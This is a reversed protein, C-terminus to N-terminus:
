IFFLFAASGILACLLFVILEYGLIDKFELRAVALLPLCWFPQIMDTVMDGWAYALVTKSFPVGLSRSAELIYPAEIAWKSGGSPIFYNLLGSYWYVVLPFCEKTSVAVFWSGIIRDLGSGKIVGFIGAYIPFQIIIGHVYGSAKEASRSFATPNPYLLFSLILFFFNVKDITLAMGNLRIDRIIWLAGALGIAANVAYSQEWFKLWRSPAGAIPEAREAQAFHNLADEPATVADEQREPYLLYAAALLSLATVATLALNFASFTTQSLPVLGIQEALFHNPTAVLLPASGSLGAHWVAGLGLYAVAVLLRYDVRPHRRVFSRVLFASAILGVGWHLWALALSAAALTVVAARPTKPIGALRDLRGQAWPSSAILSGTMLILCMQMGFTSLAWFGDGWYGICQSLSKGALGMALVFAAASLLCAIVLASPVYKETWATLKLALRVM